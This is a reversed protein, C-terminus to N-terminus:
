SVFGPKVVQAYLFIIHEAARPSSSSFVFSEINRFLYFITIVLLCLAALSFSLNDYSLASNPNVLWISTTCPM